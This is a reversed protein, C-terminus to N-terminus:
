LAIARAQSVGGSDGVKHVTVDKQPGGLHFPTTELHDGLEGVEPPVPDVFDYEYKYIDPNSPDHIETIHSKKGGPVKITIEVNVVNTGSYWNLELETNRDSSFVRNVNQLSPM